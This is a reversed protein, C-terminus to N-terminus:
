AGIRALGDTATWGGDVMLNVGTIFASADSALFAVPGIFDEPQGWRKLMSRDAVQDVWEQKARVDATLPTAVPSPAITNFRVGKSGFESGLSRMLMVLAAKTAAYMGSSPEAVVSRVSSIGIISGAGRDAMKAAFGRAMLLTYKINLDMQLDIEDETQDILHKRVLAAPLIVVASADGHTEVLSEISEADMMNCEAAVATGGDAVVSAVATNALEQSRDVAIVNAGQAALGRTVALGLGGAAGVVVIKRDELSFLRDLTGDTAHALPLKPENKM